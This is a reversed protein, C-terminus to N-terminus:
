KNRKLGRMQIERVKELFKYILFILNVPSKSMMKRSIPISHVNKKSKGIM